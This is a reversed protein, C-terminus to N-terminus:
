IFSYFHRSVNTPPTTTFPTEPPSLFRVDIATSSIESGVTIKKSSGVDPNSENVDYIITELNFFSACWIFLVTM